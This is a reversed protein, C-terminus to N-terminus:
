LFNLRELNFLIIITKCRFLGLLLVMVQQRKLKELVTYIVRLFMLLIAVQKTGISGTEKLGLQEPQKVVKVIEAESILTANENLALMATTFASIYFGHVKQNLEVEGIVKAAGPVVQIQKYTKSMVECEM